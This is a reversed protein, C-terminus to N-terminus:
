MTSIPPFREITSVRLIGPTSPGLSAYKERLLQLETLILTPALFRQPMPGILSFIVKSGIDQSSELTQERMLNNEPEGGKILLHSITIYLVM